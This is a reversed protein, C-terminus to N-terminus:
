SPTPLDAPTLRVRTDMVSSSASGAPEVDTRGSVSARDFPMTVEVGMVVGVDSRFGFRGRGDDEEAM